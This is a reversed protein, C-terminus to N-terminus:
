RSNSQFRSPHLLASLLMSFRWRLSRKIPRSMARLTCRVSGQPYKARLAEVRKDFEAAEHERGIKHLVNAYAALSDVLFSSRWEGWAREKIELSRRRLPEAEAYNQQHECVEALRDLASSVPIHNQSIRAELERRNRWRRWGKSWLATQSRVNEEVTALSRRYLREAEVYRGRERCFGALSDLAQVTSPSNAGRLQECIELARRYLQEASAYKERAEYLKAFEQLHQPLYSNSPQDEEVIESARQFLPEAESYRQRAIYFRALWTSTSCWFARGPFVETKETEALAAKYHIEAETFKGEDEYLQALSMHGAHVLTNPQPSKAAAELQDQFISEAERFRHQEQYVQALGHCALNLGSADHSSQAEAVATLYLREAKALDGSLRANQAEMTLAQFHRSEASELAPYLALRSATLLRSLSERLM